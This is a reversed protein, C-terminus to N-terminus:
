KSAGYPIFREADTKANLNVLHKNAAGPATPGLDRILAFRVHGPSTLAHGKEKTPLRTAVGARELAKMYKLANADVNGDKQERALEILQPLTAKRTIRFANWFRQRFSGERPKRVGTLPGNPGSTIRKGSAAFERGLQTPRYRPEVPAATTQKNAREIFKKQLLRGLCELINKRGAEASIMQCRHVIETASLEAGEVLWHLITTQNPRM